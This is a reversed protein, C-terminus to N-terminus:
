IRSHAGSEDAVPVGVGDVSSVSRRCRDLRTDVLREVKLGDVAAHVLVAKAVAGFVDLGGDLVNIMGKVGVTRCSGLELLLEKAFARGGVRVGGKSVCQGSYEVEPLRIAYISTRSAKACETVVNFGVGFGVCGSRSLTPCLGLPSFGYDVPPGSPLSERRKDVAIQLSCARSLLVDGTVAIEVLAEAVRSGDAPCPLVARLPAVELRSVETGVLDNGLVVRELVLVVDTVALKGVCRARKQRLPGVCVAGVANEAAPVNARAVHVPRSALEIRPASQRGEARFRECGLDVRESSRWLTTNLGALPIEKAVGHRICLM